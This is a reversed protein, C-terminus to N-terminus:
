STIAQEFTNELREQTQAQQAVAQEVYQCLCHGIFIHAEQIRATVKSPVALCLDATDALLHPREGTLAITYAGIQKAAAIGQLVNKSNGSTSLGIVIDEKRCLAQIQRAFVINYDYDNSLCTLISTDTTLAISAIAPRELQFRGILEAALHQSDAASGGNGMWFIKGGQQVASIMKDAAAKILPALDELKTMIQLHNKLSNLILDMDYGRILKRISRM